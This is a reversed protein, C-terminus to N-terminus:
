CTQQPCMCPVVTAVVMHPKCCAKGGQSGRLCHETHTRVLLLPPRRWAAVAQLLGLMSPQWVLAFLLAAVSSVQACPQSLLGSCSRSM